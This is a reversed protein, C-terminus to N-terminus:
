GTYLHFIITHETIPIKVYKDLEANWYGDERQKLVAQVEPHRACMQYLDAMNNVAKKRGDDAQIM